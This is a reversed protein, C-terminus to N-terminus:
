YIRLAKKLVLVSPVVLIVYAVLWPPFAIWPIGPVVGLFKVSRMELETAVIGPGDHHEVPAAYTLRGIELPRAATEDELRVRLRYPEEDAEGRLTWRAVGNAVRGEPGLDEEVRAVWSGGQGAEEDEPEIGELPVVHVPRGIARTATYVALGVPEGAEPPHYELRGLAWTALIAIPLISALLPKGEAKLGVLAIEQSTARHRAVAEAGGRAKAARTLAKLRKKDRAARALRDQDTTFLRVFTLLVGSGVALGAIVVDVPLALSWGLLADGVALLVDNLWTLM